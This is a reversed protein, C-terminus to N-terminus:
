VLVSSRLSAQEPTLLISSLHKVLGQVPIAERGEDDGSVHIAVVRGFEDILPSGSSGADSCATHPRRGNENLKGLRGVSMCKYTKSRPHHVLFVPIEDSLDAAEWIRYWGWREGPLEGSPAKPAVRILSLDAGLDEPCLM